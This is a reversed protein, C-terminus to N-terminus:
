ERYHTLPENLPDLLGVSRLVYAPFAASGSVLQDYISAANGGHAASRPAASSPLPSRNGRSQRHASSNPELDAIM